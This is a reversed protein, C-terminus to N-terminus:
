QLNLLSDTKAAMIFDNRHLNRIKHTWWTISARGWETVIVPHHGEKEALAGVRNTFAMARRFDPFGFVKSLQRVGNVRNLDWGPILPYLQEIDNETVAPSDRRCAVCREEVLKAM